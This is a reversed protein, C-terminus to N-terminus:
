ARGGEPGPVPAPTTRTVLDAVTTWDQEGERPEPRFKAFKALDAHDLVTRVAAQDARAVEAAKLERMLEQTTRDLATVGFRAELYRRLIDSLDSYYAKLEGSLLWGSDRLAELRRRAEIEPPLPPPPPALPGLWKKRRAFWVGGGALVSLGALALLVPVWPFFGVPAKLDRLDGTKGAAVKVILPASRYEGARGDALRFRIVLPPVERDGDLFTMLTLRDIRVRRGNRVETEGRVVNMVAWDGLPQPVEPGEASAGPDIRVEAEVTWPTGSTPQGVPRLSLEVPVPVADASTAPGTDATGRKVQLASAPAASGLVAGLVAGLVLTRVGARVRPASM